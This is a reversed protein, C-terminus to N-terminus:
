YRASVGGFFGRRLAPYGAVEAYREELLNEVRGYVHVNRTAEFDLLLRLTTYDENDVRAFTRPDIDERANVSKLELATSFRPVPRVGVSAFVEHRPRRLLRSGDPLAANRNSTSVADLYTYSFRAFLWPAPEWRGFAEVGLTRASGLNEARFPDSIFGVINSLDNHFYNAGFRLKDKFLGQEFGFDYGFSKEADLGFNGGFIKDQPAPPAYGTAVSSRLTLGLKDFLYSGAFRYTGVSGFQNFHDYRGGAVLLANKFPEVSLQAFGATNEVFDKLYQPQPGFAQSVFPQRVAAFTQEYFAGTTLTLWRTFAIDNQYDIQYRNFQGRTPGTFGDENPNNVQREKDYSLVLHHHWWKTLQWDLNPAYLQRETVFNDKPRPNYIDSPNGTDANNYLAILGLRPASGGSPELSLARPTFGLNTLVATNRYENNPRDNDTDLRSFGVSYDFTYPATTGVDGFSAKGDKTESSVPLHRTGGLVGAVAVRERFTGFSGGEASVDATFPRPDDLQDGRRSFLQIAGALARPGYLTSQPGRQVEIRSLNEGTLDAFNFLGALGQNLPVGDLLVQTHRSELGRTFVSTLQGPAGTQAVALGPVARLADAVRDTQRQALEEATIVTVAAPVRDADTPLRTATVVIRDPRSGSSEDPPSANAYGPPIAAFEQARLPVPLAALGVPILALSAAVLRRSRGSPRNPMIKPTPQNTPNTRVEPQSPYGVRREGLRLGRRDLRVGRPVRM